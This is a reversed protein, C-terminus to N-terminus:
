AHHVVEMLHALCRQYERWYAAKVDHCDPFNPCVRYAMAARELAHAAYEVEAVNTGLEVPKVEAVASM